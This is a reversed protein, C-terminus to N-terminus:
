YFMLELESLMKTLIILVNQCTKIVKEQEERNM